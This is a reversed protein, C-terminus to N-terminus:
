HRGRLISRLGSLGSMMHFAAASLGATNVAFPFRLSVAPPTAMFIDEIKVKIFQLSNQPLSCTSTKLGLSSCSEFSIQKKGGRTVRIIIAKLYPITTNAQLGLVQPISAAPNWIEPWGSNRLSVGLWIKWFSFFVKHTHVHECARERKCVHTCTSVWTLM